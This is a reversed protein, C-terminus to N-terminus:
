LVPAPVPPLPPLVIHVVPQPNQQLMYAGLCTKSCFTLGGPLALGGTCNCGCGDCIATV